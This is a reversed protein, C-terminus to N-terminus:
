RFMGEVALADECLRGVETDYWDRKFREVIFARLARVDVEKFAKREAHGLINAIICDWPYTNCWARYFAQKGVYGLTELAEQADECDKLRRFDFNGMEVAADVWKPSRYAFETLEKGDAEGAAYSAALEAVAKFTGGYDWQKFWELLRPNDRRLDESAAGIDEFAM